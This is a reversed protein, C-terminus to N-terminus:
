IELQRLEMLQQFASKRSDHLIEAIRPDLNPNEALCLRVSMPGKLVLELQRAVDEVTLAEKGRAKVEVVLAHEVEASDASGDSVVVNADLSSGM